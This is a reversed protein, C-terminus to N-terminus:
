VGVPEAVEAQQDVSEVAEEAPANELVSGEGDDVAETEGVVSPQEDGGVNEFVDEANADVGMPSGDGAANYSMALFKARAQQVALAKKYTMLEHARYITLVRLFVLM